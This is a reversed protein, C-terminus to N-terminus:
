KTNIGSGDRATTCSNDLEIEVNRDDIMMMMMMMM